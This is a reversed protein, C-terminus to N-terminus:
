EGAAPQGGRAGITARWKGFLVFLCFLGGVVGVAAGVIAETLSGGGAARPRNVRPDGPLHVVQIRGSSRTEDWAREDLAAWLDREDGSGGHRFVEAAGPLEFRYRVQYSTGSRRDRTIRRDTVTAEVVSDARRLSLEALLAAVSHQAIMAGFAM